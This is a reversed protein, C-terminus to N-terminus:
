LVQTCMTVLRKKAHEHQICSCNGSNVEWDFKVSALVPDILYCLKCCAENSAVVGMFVNFKRVYFEELKSNALLPLPENNALLSPPENAHVSECSYASSHKNHQSILFCLISGLSPLIAEPYVLVKKYSKM